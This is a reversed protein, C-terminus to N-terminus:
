VEHINTLGEGLMSSPGWGKKMKLCPRVSSNLTVKLKSQPGPLSHVQSGGAEAEPDTCKLYLLLLLSFKQSKFFTSTTSSMSLLCPLASAPIDPVLQSILNALSTSEPNLLHHQRLLYFSSQNLVDSPVRQDECAGAYVYWVYLGKSGCICKGVCTHVCACLGHM